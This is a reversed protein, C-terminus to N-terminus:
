NWKKLNIKGWPLEYQITITFIILFTICLLYHINHTIVQLRFVQLLQPICRLLYAKLQNLFRLFVLQILNPSQPFVRDSRFDISQPSFTSQWIEQLKQQCSLCSVSQSVCLRWGIPLCGGSSPALLRKGVFWRRSRCPSLAGQIHM